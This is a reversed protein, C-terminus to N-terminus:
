SWLISGIVANLHARKDWCYRPYTIADLLTWANKAEGEKQSRTMCGSLFASMQQFAEEEDTVLALLEHIREWNKGGKLLYRALEIGPSSEVDVNAVIQQLEELSKCSHAAQLLTLAKRPLGQSAQVIGTLVDNSPQWNELECIMDILEIIEQSPLPKLQVHFCRQKISDPIKNVETTCLAVYFYSPPEELLKLLTFFAQKSFTHAEDLIYILNKEAHLPLYQALEVIQKADDIGNHSAVDMEVILANLDLALIRAMTTKGLGPPGSFLYSHPRGESKIAKELAQITLGHGFLESWLQPRYKTILPADIM